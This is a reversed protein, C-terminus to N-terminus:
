KLTPDKLRFLTPYADTIGFHEIKVDFGEFGISKFIKKNKIQYDQGELDAFKPDMVVGNAEIGNKQKMALDKEAGPWWYINYDMNYEYPMPKTGAKHVFM